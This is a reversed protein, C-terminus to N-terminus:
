GMPYEGYREWLKPFRNRLHEEDDQEWDLEIEPYDLLGGTIQEFLEQYDDDNRGTKEQYADSAAYLLDEYEPYEYDELKELVPILSEPDQLARNYVEKGAYILWARFYDFSDDSCGGLIIYAAGWLSSQCSAYHFSHLWVDFEVIERVSRGSLTRILWEVQEEMDIGMTKATELLKWFEEENMAHPRILNESGEVQWYGEELKTRILQEAEKACEEPSEFIKFQISGQTGIKGSTISYSNGVVDIKWFENSKEDQYILVTEM